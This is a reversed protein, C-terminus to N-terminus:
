RGLKEVLEEANPRNRLVASFDTRNEVASKVRATLKTDGLLVAEGAPSAAERYPEFEERSAGCVPCVDPPAPGRHIYGCVICRWGSNADPM